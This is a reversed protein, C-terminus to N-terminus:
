DDFEAPWDDLQLGPTEQDSSWRIPRMPEYSAVPVGDEDIDLIPPLKMRRPEIRARQKM